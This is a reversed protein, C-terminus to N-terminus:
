NCKGLKNESSETIYNSSELYKVFKGILTDNFKKPAWMLKHEEDSGM